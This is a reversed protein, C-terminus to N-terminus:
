NMKSFQNLFPGFDFIKLNVLDVVPKNDSSLYVLKIEKLFFINETYKNIMLCTFM